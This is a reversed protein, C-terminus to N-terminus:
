VKIISSSIMKLWPGLDISYRSVTATTPSHIFINGNFVFGNISEQPNAKCSTSCTPQYLEVVHKSSRSRSQYTEYTKSTSTGAQQSRQASGAHDARSTQRSQHLM